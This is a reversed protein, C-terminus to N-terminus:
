QMTKIFNIAEELTIRARNALPFRGLDEYFLALDYGLLPDFMISHATSLEIGDGNTDLVSFHQTLREIEDNTLLPQEQTYTTNLFEFEHREFEELDFEGKILATTTKRLRMFCGGGSSIESSSEILLGTSTSCNLLATLYHANHFSIISYIGDEKLAIFIRKLMQAISGEVLIADLTGKDIILDVKTHTLALLDDCHGEVIDLVAYTV